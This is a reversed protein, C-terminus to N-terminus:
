ILLLFIHLLKIQRSDTNEVSWDICRLKEDFSQAIVFAYCCRLIKCKNRGFRINKKYAFSFYFRQIM